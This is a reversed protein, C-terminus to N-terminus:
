FRVLAHSPSVRLHSEMKSDFVWRGYPVHKTANEFLTTQVVCYVLVNTSYEKICLHARSDASEEGARPGKEECGMCIHHHHM